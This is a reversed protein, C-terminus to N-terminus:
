LMALNGEWPFEGGFHGGAATSLYIPRALGLRDIIGMPSLDFSKKVLSEMEQSGHGGPAEIRVSIPEVEGIAYALQVLCCDSLGTAVISKAVQRAAYAASRDVKSPDKGSFAGGGHPCAGGYTDVVIKRGTMGCDAAPGGVRFSGGPNVLVRFDPTRVEVPVVPEVIHRFVGERIEDTDVGRHQTSLVITDIGDLVGDRYRVTVQSKADPLLWGLDGTKRVQTQRRILRHAYEIAAPMLVETENCAYGFMIGQDGAGIQGDPRDVKDRIERSQAGIRVDIRCGDVDLGAAPDEYGVDRLLRRVLDPVRSMLLEGFDDVRAHAEGGVLVFGPGVFTEIASKGQPDQELIFDLVADSIQDAVKDPHGESVSESTSYTYEPM